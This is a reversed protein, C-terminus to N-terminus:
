GTSWWGGPVDVFHPIGPNLPYVTRLYIQKPEDGREVQRPTEESAAPAATGDGASEADLGRRESVNTSFVAITM